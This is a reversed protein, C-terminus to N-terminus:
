FTYFRLNKPIFAEDCVDKTKRAEKNKNPWTAENSDKIRENEEPYAM